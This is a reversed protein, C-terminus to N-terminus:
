SQNQDISEKHSLFYIWMASQDDMQDNMWKNTRGNPREDIQDNM